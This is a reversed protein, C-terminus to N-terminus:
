ARGWLHLRPALDRRPRSLAHRAVCRMEAVSVGEATCLEQNWPRWDPGAWLTRAGSTPLEFSAGNGRAQVLVKFPRSERPGLPM